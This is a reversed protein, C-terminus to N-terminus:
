LKKIKRETCYFIAFCLLFMAGMGLSLGLTEDTIFSSLTLLASAYALGLLMMIKGSYKQAFIWNVENKMSTRTRYGYLYNIKKPPFIVLVAGALIFIPGFVLALLFLPNEFNM